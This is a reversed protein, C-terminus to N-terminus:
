SFINQFKWNSGSGSSCLTFLKTFKNKYICQRNAISLRELSRLVGPSLQKKNHMYGSMKGGVGDKPDRHMVDLLLTMRFSLVSSSNEM